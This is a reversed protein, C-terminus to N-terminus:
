HIFNHLFNIFNNEKLGALKNLAVQTIILAGVSSGAYIDYSKQQDGTLYEMIGGAYAGKSGGGSIVLANM